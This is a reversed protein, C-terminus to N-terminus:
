VPIEETEKIWKSVNLQYFMDARINACFISIKFLHFSANLAYVKIDITLTFAFMLTM